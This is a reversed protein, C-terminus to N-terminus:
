RWISLGYNILDMCLNIKAILVYGKPRIFLILKLSQVISLAGIVLVVTM